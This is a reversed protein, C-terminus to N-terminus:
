VGGRHSHIAVPCDMQLGVVPTVPSPVTWRYDWVGGRHSHLAIDGWTDGRHLHLTVPCNMQLEVYRKGMIAVLGM